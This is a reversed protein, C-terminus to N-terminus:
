SYSGFATSKRRFSGRSNKLAKAYKFLEERADQSPQPELPWEHEDVESVSNMRTLLSASVDSIRMSSSSSVSKQSRSWSRPLDLSRRSSARSTTRSSKTLEDSYSSFGDPIHDLSVTRAISNFRKHPEQNKSSSGKGKLLKKLKSFVKNKSSHKSKDAKNTDISSDDTLCSHSSSCQDFDLGTIDMRRSISGNKYASEMIIQKLRDESKPSLMKKADGSISKGDNTKHNSEEYRLCANIWRLYVLEEVDIWREAQMREAEKMLEDNQQRLRQSEARLEHM